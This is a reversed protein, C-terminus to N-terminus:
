RRSALGAFRAFARARAPANTLVHDFEGVGAAARSVAVYDGARWTVTAPRDPLYIEWLTGDSLRVFGGGKPTAALRAGVPATLAFSPQSRLRRRTHPQERPKDVTASGTEDDSGPNSAQAPTMQGAEPAPEPLQRAVERRVEASYRTLWADLALRQEHTLSGIGARELQASTMVQDMRLPVLALPAQGFSSAACTFVAVSVSPLLQTLRMDSRRFASSEDPFNDGTREAATAIMADRIKGSGHRM